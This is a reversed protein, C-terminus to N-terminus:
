SVLGGAGPILDIAVRLVTRVTVFVLVIVVAAEVTVVLPAFMGFQLAFEAMGTSAWYVSELITTGVARGAGILLDLAVLPIDVIGYTGSTSAADTGVFLALLASLVRTVIAELGSIAVDFLAGLIFAIPHKAFKKIPDPVGLINAWAVKNSDDSGGSDDDQGPLHPM